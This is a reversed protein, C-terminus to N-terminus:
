DFSANPFQYNNSKVIPQRSVRAPQPMINTEPSNIQLLNRTNNPLNPGYQADNFGITRSQSYNSHVANNIEKVVREEFTTSLAKMPYVLELMQKSPLLFDKRFEEISQWGNYSTLVKKSSAPKIFLPVDISTNTMQRRIKYILTIRQSSYADKDLFSQKIACSDSCMWHSVTIKNDTTWRPEPYPFPFGNIPHGDYWCHQNTWEISTVNGDVDVFPIGFNVYVIPQQHGQYKALEKRMEALQAVLENNKTNSYSSLNPVRKIMSQSPQQKLYHEPILDKVQDETLKLTVIIPEHFTPDEQIPYSSQQVENNQADKWVNEQVDFYQNGSAYRTRSHSNQDLYTSQQNYQGELYQNNQAVNLNTQNSQQSYPQWQKWQQSTALIVNDQEGDSRSGSSHKGRGRGRKM